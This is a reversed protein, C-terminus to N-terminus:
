KLLTMKKFSRTSGSEFEYLYIGSSLASGDFAVEYYGEVKIEDVLVKILKGLVDYIKIYVHEKEPVQYRIFTNPNFPNPYNQYLAFEKPTYNDKYTKIFNQNGILLSFENNQHNGSIEIENQIKLNYFKKLREDVLYIEYEAFKEIGNVILNAKKNTTNKILLEFSQGEGIESRHEIFLQKYSTSLNNNVLRINLEEFNGPPAFYDMYDYDNSASHEFGVMIESSFEESGLKLKLSENSLFYPQENTKPLSSTFPYPIKLSQLNTANNFYYGEYPVMTIPQSFNGNFAHFVIGGGNANSIDALNVNKEFPNTIINWGDHLDISYSNDFALQVTNVKRSVNIPNKSLAWFGRGSGFNFKESGNFEEFFNTSAGNDHFINWDKKQTGTIFQTPSANVNGPLGILRYSSNKTPDGFAYSKNLTITSRVVIVYDIGIYYSSSGNEGGDFMLYRLAFRLPGTYNFTAFFPAWGNIPSLLKGISTFDALNTSGNQSFLVTLSDPFDVGDAPSRLYFYLTDGMLYNIQPSILWHDILTGNAGEFNSAVYGNSPGEFAPFVTENGQFWTPTTGGGDNDLVIWGRAELGAISNDGNMDDLFIIYQSFSTTSFLILFLLKIKM